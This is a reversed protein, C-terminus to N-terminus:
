TECIAAPRMPRLYDLAARLKPFQGVVTREGVSTVFWVNSGIPCHVWYLPQRGEPKTVVIRGVLAPRDSQRQNVYAGLEGSAAAIWVRLLEHDGDSPIRLPPLDDSDATTPDCM